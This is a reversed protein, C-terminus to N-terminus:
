IHSKNYNFIVNLFSISKIIKETKLIKWVLKERLLKINLEDLSWRKQALM